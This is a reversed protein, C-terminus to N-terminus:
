SVVEGDIQTCYRRTLIQLILDAQSNPVFIVGNACAWGDLMAECYSKAEPTKPLLAISGRTTIVAIDVCAPIHAAGNNQNSKPSISETRM